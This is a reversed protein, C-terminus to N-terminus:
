HPSSTRVPTGAVVSLVSSLGALRFWLFRGLPLSCSGHGFAQHFARTVDVVSRPAVKGVVPSNWDVEAQVLARQTTMWADGTFYLWREKSLVREFPEGTSIERFVAATLHESEPQFGLETAISIFADETLETGGFRHLAAEFLQQVHCRIGM